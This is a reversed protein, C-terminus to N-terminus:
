QHLGHQVLGRANTNNSTFFSQTYSEGIVKLMAALVAEDLMRHHTFDICAMALKDLHQNMLLM